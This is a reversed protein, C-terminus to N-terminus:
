IVDLSRRREWAALAEDQEAQHRSVQEDIEERNDAWYALAAEVEHRSLGVADAVVEANRHEKDHQQWAEAVTWVQPGGALAARREGAGSAVFVIGPHEQMRLWEQLAVVVVTSKRARTRRAYERLRRDVSEPFRVNTPAVM